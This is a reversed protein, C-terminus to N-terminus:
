AHGRSAELEAGVALWAQEIPEGPAVEVCIWGAQRLPAVLSSHWPTIVFVVALTFSRRQATLRDLIMSDTDGIVAFVSGQSRDPRDSGHLLSIPTPAEDVLQVAALSELFEEVHDVTALQNRATEIVSVLVGTRELHVGLSAVLSVACEFAESEAEGTDGRHAVDRYNARRTDLLIRAEAHSRQEEQRVMLEGHHASARWHVRRLADGRRYERTMLDDEAGLARREVMRTPGEDASISVIGDALQVVEPTVVLTKTSGAVLAGDALGFPDTFDILLPGVEFVGRVPPVVDYRLKRSAGSITRGIGRPRLQPLAAPVSAYPSWPWSDRWNADATPYASHNAIEVEAIIPHGAAVVHPQFVREVSLRMVRFRVYVLACLPMVIVFCAVYLLERRGFAYSAVILVAGLVLLFWGRTSLRAIRERRRPPTRSM